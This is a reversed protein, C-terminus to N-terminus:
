AAPLESYAFDYDGSGVEIRSDNGVQAVNMVGVSASVPVQGEIVRELAARPLIIAATTNAPITVKVRMQGAQREWESAILGQVSEYAARASTLNGGPRPHITIRKYGPATAEIGAVKHHM